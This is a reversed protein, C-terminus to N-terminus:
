LSFFAGGVNRGCSRWPRPEPPGRFSVAPVRPSQWKVRGAGAWPWGCTAWWGWTPVMGPTRSACHAAPSSPGGRSPSSAPLWPVGPGEQPAGGLPNLWPNSRVCSGAASAVCLQLVSHVLRAPPSSRVGPSPVVRPAAQANHSVGPRTMESAWAVAASTM